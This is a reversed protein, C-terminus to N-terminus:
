NIKLYSIIISCVTAILFFFIKLCMPGTHGPNLCMSNNYLMGFVAHSSSDFPGPITNERLIPVNLLGTNVFPM